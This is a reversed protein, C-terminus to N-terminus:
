LPQEEERADIARLAEILATLPRRPTPVRAMMTTVAESIAEELQRLIRDRDVHAAAPASPLAEGEAAVQPSLRTLYVAQTWSTLTPPMWGANEESLFHQRNIELQSVIPELSPVFAHLAKYLPAVLFTIFGVQAKSIDVTHRDCNMSIPMGQAREAEGQTFFEKMVGGIWQEYVARHKAPNSIDAAKIILCMVEGVAPMWARKGGDMLDCSSTRAKLEFAEFQEYSARPAAKEGFKKAAGMTTTVDTSLVHERMLDIFRVRDDSPMTCLFDLEPRDLLALAVKAHHNELVSKPTEGLALAIPHKTAILYPNMVGPHDTDHVLAGILLPAIQFSDAFFDPHDKEVTRILSSTTLVVDVAHRFNHFPRPHYRAAIECVYRWLKRLDIQHEHLHMLIARYVLAPLEDYPVTFVDFDWEQAATLLTEADGSPEPQEPQL